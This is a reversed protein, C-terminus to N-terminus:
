SAIISRSGIVTIQELIPQIRAIFPWTSRAAFLLELVAVAGAKGEV